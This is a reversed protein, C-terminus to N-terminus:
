VQIDIIHMGTDWDKNVNDLIQQYHDPNNVFDVDDTNFILIRMDPNQKFFTFYIDEVQKLYERRVEQEFGRGRKKINYILRDINSHVYVLLDPQPIKSYIIEFLRSFLHYEDEELNVKAYLLSKNFLYDAIFRQEPQFLEPAQFVNKLQYYRDAMFYLETTFAYRDPQAYFKPLFPNDAFEELILEAQFEKALLKALSTKGAGTNGEVTILKHKM